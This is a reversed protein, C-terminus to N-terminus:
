LLLTVGATPFKKQNDDVDSLDQQLGAGIKNSSDEHGFPQLNNCLLCTGEREARYTRVGKNVNWVVAEGIKTVDQRLRSLKELYTSM